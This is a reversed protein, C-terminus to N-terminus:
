GSRRTRHARPRGPDAPALQAARQLEAIGRTWLRGLNRLAVGLQDHAVVDAPAAPDHSRPAYLAEDFSGRELLARALNRNASATRCSASWSGGSSSLRKM